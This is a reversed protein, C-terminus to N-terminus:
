FSVESGTRGCKGLPAADTRQWKRWRASSARCRHIRPFRSGAVSRRIPASASDFIKVRPCLLSMKMDQSLEPDAQLAIRDPVEIAKVLECRGHDGVVDFLMQTKVRDALTAGSDLPEAPPVPRERSATKSSVLPRGQLRPRCYWGIAEAYGM